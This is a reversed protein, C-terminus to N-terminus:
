KNHGFLIDKNIKVEGYNVPKYSLSIKTINGINENDEKTKFSRTSKNQLFKSVNQQTITATSNKNVKGEPFFMIDRQGLINAIDTQSKAGYIEGKFIDNSDTFTEITYPLVSRLALFTAEKIGKNYDEKTIGPIANKKAVSKAYMADYVNPFKFAMIKLVCNIKCLLLKRLEVKGVTFPASHTATWLASFIHAFLRKQEIFKHSQQLILFPIAQHVHFAYKKAEQPRICTEYLTIKKKWGV